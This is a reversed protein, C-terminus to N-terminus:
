EDLGGGIFMDSISGADGGYQHINYCSVYRAVNNWDEKTTNSETKTRDEFMGILTNKIKSIPTYSLLKQHMSTRITENLVVFSNM